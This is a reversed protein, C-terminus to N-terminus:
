DLLSSSRNKKIKIKICSGKYDRCPGRQVQELQNINQQWHFLGAVCQDLPHVASWLNGVACLADTNSVPCQTAQGQKERCLQVQSKRFDDTILKNIKKYVRGEPSADINM